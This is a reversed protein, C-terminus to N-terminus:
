AEDEIAKKLLMEEEISTANYTEESLDFYKRGGADTKLENELGASKVIENMEPSDIYLKGNFFSVIDLFKEWIFRHSEPIIIRISDKTIGSRTRLGYIQIAKDILNDPSIFEKYNIIFDKNSINKLSKIKDQVDIGETSTFFGCLKGNNELNRRYLETDIIKLQEETLEEVDILILKNENNFEFMPGSNFYYRYKLSMKNLRGNLNPEKYIVERLVDTVKGDKKSVPGKIDKYNTEAFLIEQIERANQHATYRCLSEHLLYELLADGKLQSLVERAYGLTPSQLLENLYKEFDPALSNFGLLWRYTKSGSKISDIVIANFVVKDFNELDDIAKFITAKLDDDLPSSNVIIRLQKTHDNFIDKDLKNEKKINGKEDLIQEKLHTVLVKKDGKAILGDSQDDKPIPEYNITDWSDPDHPNNEDMIIAWGKGAAEQVPIRIIEEDTESKLVLINDPSLIIEDSDGHRRGMLTFIKGDPSRMKTLRDLTHYEPGQPEEKKEPMAIEEPKEEAPAKEVTTEICEKLPFWKKQKKVYVQLRELIDKIIHEEIKGDSFQLYIKSDPTLVPINYIVCDRDDMRAIAGKKINDKRLTPETLMEAKKAKGKATIDGAELGFDKLLKKLVKVSVGMSEAVSPIDKQEKTLELYKKKFEDALNLELLITSFKIHMRGSLKIIYESFKQLNWNIEQSNLFKLAEEESILEILTKIPPLETFKSTIISACLQNREKGTADCEKYPSVDYIQTKKAKDEPVLGVILGYDDHWAVTIYYNGPSLGLFLLTNKEIPSISFSNFDLGLKKIGFEEIDKSLLEKIENLPGNEKLYIIYKLILPTLYVLALKRRKEFKPATIHIHKKALVDYNKYPSIDYFVDEGEDKGEKSFVVALGRDELWEFTINNIGKPPLTFHLISNKIPTTTFSSGVISKKWKGFLSMEKEIEEKIQGLSKNGKLLNVYKLIVKNFRLRNLEDRAGLKNAYINRSENRDASINYEAYPNIDFVIDEENNQEQKGFIVVLGVLDDWQLKLFLKGTSLHDFVLNNYSGYIPTPAFAGGESIDLEWNGFEEIDSYLVEKIQALTKGQRLMNAYKEIILNFDIRKIERRKGKKYANIITHRGEENFNKCGSLEYILDEKEDKGSEKLVVILGLIKHWELVAKYAKDELGRIILTNNGMFKTTIANGEIIDEWGIFEEIRSRLKAYIEEMPIEKQLEQAYLYIINNFEKQEETELDIGIDLENILEIFTDRSLEFYKCIFGIRGKEQEFVRYVEQKFQETIGLGIIFDTYRFQKTLWSSQRFFEIIAPFKWKKDTFVEMIKDPTKGTIELLEGEKFKVFGAEKDLDMGLEKVLELFTASYIEFYRATPTIMYQNLNYVRRVEKLFQEVIDLGIIFDQYRVRKKFWGQQKFYEMVNPLRWEKEEILELIKEKTMGTIQLLEGKEFKVFGAKKFEERGLSVLLQNLNDPWLGFARSTKNMNEQNEKYIEDFKNLFEEALELGIILDSFNILVSVINRKALSERFLPLNWNIEKGKLENLIDEKKLGYGELIVGKEFLNIDSIDIALKNIIGNITVKHVGFYDAIPEDRGQKLRYIERYKKKFEEEIDLGIILDTININFGLGSKLNGLNWQLNDLSQLIDEKTKEIIPLIIGKTIIVEEPDSIKLENALNRLTPVILGFESAVRHIIGLNKQYVENYKAQFEAVLDLKRFFDSLSIWKREALAAIHDHFKQLNWNIDESELLSLAKEKSMEIDLPLPSWGPGQPLSDVPDVIELSKKLNEFAVISIGFYKAMRQAVGRNEIYIEKYKAQFKDVIDLAKLLEPLPIRKIRMKSAIHDHFKKLNWNIDESELLSLAEEKSMKVTLGQRPKTPKTSPVKIEERKIPKRQPLSLEPELLAKKTETVEESALVLKSAGLKNRKKNISSLATSIASEDAETGWETKIFELLDWLTPKELRNFAIIIQNELPPAKQPKQIHREGTKPIPVLTVKIEVKETRRSFVGHIYHEEEGAPYDTIQALEWTKGFKELRILYRKDVFLTTLGKGKAEEWLNLLKKTPRIYKNEEGTGEIYGLKYLEQASKAEKYIKTSTPKSFYVETIRWPEETRAGDIPLFFHKYIHLKIDTDPIQYLNDIGNINSSLLSLTCKEAILDIRNPLSPSIKIGLDKTLRNFVENEKEILLSYFDSITTIPRLHNTRNFYKIWRILCDALYALEFNINSATDFFESENALKEKELTHKGIKGRNIYELNAWAIDSYLFSGIVIFTVLKLCITNKNIKQM